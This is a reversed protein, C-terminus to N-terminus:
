DVQVVNLVAVLEPDLQIVARALLLSRGHYSNVNRPFRSPDRRGGHELALELSGLLARADELGDPLVDLERDELLVLDLDRALVGELSLHDRNM